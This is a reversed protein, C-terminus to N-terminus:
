IAMSKAVSQMDRMISSDLIRAYHRTMNTNAHGLMKAVNEITAGSALTLTAFTHRACHTSLHKRIGCIDALEKLYANMKQNSCVPLLVGHAQCYPNDNYRELIKRAADLLPINCMNRTKQRAKRIWDMGNIDKVIHEPKLQQVDTFALGTLCCFCFIDRVQRIRPIDIQKELVHLFEHKELFAREVQEMHIHKERFPDNELWGNTMAIRIIKKFNKLNKMVTNHACRRDTKMYFEYDEVLQEPLDDLYFDDQGYKTRLFESTIRFLSEYRQVTTPAFDIGSLARCKENHEQFVEMLTHRQPADKGLYRSLISQASVAVGESELQRRVQMINFGIAELMRNVEKGERSNELARGKATNWLQPSIHYKISTDARLGNMTIRLFVPAKGTKDLKTRRIYFTMGFTTREM